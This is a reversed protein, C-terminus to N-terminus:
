IVLRPICFADKVGIRLRVVRPQVFGGVFLMIGMAAFVELNEM